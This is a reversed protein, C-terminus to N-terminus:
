KHTHTHTRRCQVGRLPVTWTFLWSWSQAEELSASCFEVKEGRKKQPEAGRLSNGPWVFVKALADAGASGIYCRTPHFAVDHISEESKKRHATFEQICTKSEMNWLRVSCDHGPSSVALSSPPRSWPPRPMDGSLREIPRVMSQRGPRESAPNLNKIKTTSKLNQV